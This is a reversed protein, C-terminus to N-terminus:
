AFSLLKEINTLLTAAPYGKLLVGDAGASKAVQQQRPTDALVLCRIQPWYAKLQNLTAKVEYDPLTSDLLILTPRREAVMKLAAFGDDAQGVIELQPITTLLASLADRLRGPRAVILTAEGM